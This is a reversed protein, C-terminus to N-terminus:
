NENIVNINELKIESILELQNNLYLDAIQQITASNNKPKYNEYDVFRIGNIYRENYAKRFRVGGGNEHFDYALYDPKFSQKQIWYYYTDEFDDGGGNKDFTVKVVYYSKNNIVKEELLEKNVAKDNLRYPLQVFYHVSNISNSYLSALSDPILVLADNIYREFGSNNKVDIYNVSDIEFSRKLITGRNESVYNKDRFRFSIKSSKYLDGGCVTISNNIIEEASLNTETREKCSFLMIFLVLILYVRKM